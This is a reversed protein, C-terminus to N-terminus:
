PEPFFEFVSSVHKSIVSLMISYQDKTQVIIPAPPPDCDLSTGLIALFHKERGGKDKGKGKHKRNCM